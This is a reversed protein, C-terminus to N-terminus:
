SKAESTPASLFTSVIGYAMVYPGHNKPDHLIESIEEDADTLVQHVRRKGDLSLGETKVRLMTGWEDLRSQDFLDVIHRIEDLLVDVDVFRFNEAIAKYKGSNDKRILGMELLSQISSASSEGLKTHLEADSIGSDTAALSLVVFDTRRLKIKSDSFVPVVEKQQDGYLLGTEPFHRLIFDAGERRPFIVAAIQMANTASASVEKQVIRRLTSYPVSSLNSLVQLSSNKRTNLWSDIAEALEDKLEAMLFGGMKEGSHVIMHGCVVVTLSNLSDDELSKRM